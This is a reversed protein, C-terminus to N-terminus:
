NTVNLTSQVKSIFPRRDEVQDRTEDSSDSTENETLTGTCQRADGKQGETLPNDLLNIPNDVEM